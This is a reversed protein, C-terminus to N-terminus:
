ERQHHLRNQVDLLTTQIHHLQSIVQSLQQELPTSLPPQSGNVPPESQTLRDSKIQEYLMQTRRSPQVDLEKQLITYCRDYQRLAEIRHGLLYYLRMIAQHTYERAEDQQLIRTAYHLGAEYQGHAEYYDMLKELISLYMLQFRERERLCWSEFLGEFLEGSYLRIANQLENVQAGNLDAAPIKKTQNYSTEFIKVDLWLDIEPNVRIWEPDVLIVSHEEHDPLTLASQLQWIAKRLYGKSQKSSVDQWLLTTLKERHHPHDFHFFLYYFLEQVKCANPLFLQQQSWEVSLKGFLSVRLQM